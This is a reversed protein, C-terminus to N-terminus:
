EKVQTLVYYGVNAEDVGLEAYNEATIMTVTFETGNKATVTGELVYSVPTVTTDVAWVEKTGEVDSVTDVKTTVTSVSVKAENVDTTASNDANVQVMYFLGLGQPVNDVVKEPKLTNGKADYWYDGKKVKGETETADAAVINEAKTGLMKVVSEPITAFEVANDKSVFVNPVGKEAVYDYYQADLSGKLEQMDASAQADSVVNSFTAIMVGALIAIVAIVIVLEVLTFGKKANTKKM